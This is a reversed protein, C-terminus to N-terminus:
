RALGVMLAPNTSPVNTLLEFKAIKAKGVLNAPVLTNEKVLITAPQGM